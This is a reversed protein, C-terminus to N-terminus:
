LVNEANYIWASVQSGATASAYSEPLEILANAEGIATLRGYDQLPVATLTDSNYRVRSYVLQTWDKQGFLDGEVVVRSKRPFCSAFGMLRRCVPLALLLLAVHNSPPGGPLNCVITKGIRGLCAGKGPGIRVRHFIKEMGLREMAKMTLDKDGDLIGGCTILLDVQKVIARLQDELSDLNDRLITTSTKCGLRSLEAEATVMNSAAVKGPVVEEGPWVLESGTAAVAVEPAPYCLLSGVGSSALLGLHAPELLLGRGLVLQGKTIDSGRCLINRGAKADASVLVGNGTSTAFESAVVSTAGMPIEAGTMIRIAEGRNVQFSGAEGGATLVGSVFLKIPREPTAHEIDSAILAFGDKLSSDVTPCDVLAYVDEACIHGLAKDIPIVTSDLPVIKEIIGHAEKLSIM